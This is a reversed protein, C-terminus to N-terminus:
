YNEEFLVSMIKKPPFFEGLEIGVVTAKSLQKLAELIDQTLELKTPESHRYVTIHPKWGEYGNAYDSDFYSHLVLLEESVEPQIYRVM